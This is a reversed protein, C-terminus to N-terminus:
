ERLEKMAEELEADCISIYISTTAMSKHGLARQVLPLNKKKAYLDTAFTHRLSHPHLSKDIGAKEGLRKVMKRLWRGCLPKKGDLSTFILNSSPRPNSSPSLYALWDQLLMLDAPAVWVIREKRGKGVVKLRGSDRDLNRITLERVERARLGCNLMLRILALNRLKGPTSTPELVRLLKAREQATLVEPIRRFNRM